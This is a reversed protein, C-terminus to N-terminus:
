YILVCFQFPTKFFPQRSELLTYDNMRFSRRKYFQLKSKIATYLFAVWQMVSIILRNLGAQNKIREFGPSNFYASTHVPHKGIVLVRFYFSFHDLFLALITSLRVCLRLSRSVITVLM